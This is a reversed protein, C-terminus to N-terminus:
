QGAHDDWSHLVCVARCMFPESSGEVLGQLANVQIAQASLHLSM